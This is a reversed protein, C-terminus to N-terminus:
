CVHVQMDCGQVAVECEQFMHVLCHFWYYAAEAQYVQMSAPVALRALHSSLADLM